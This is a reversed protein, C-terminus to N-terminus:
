EETARVLTAGIGSGRRSETVVLDCIQAVVGSELSHVVAVHIWAEVEDDHEAVLVEDNGSLMALRAVIEEATSPYGLEGALRALAAADGTEARRIM